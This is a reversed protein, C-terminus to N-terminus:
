AGLMEDLEITLDFSPVTISDGLIYIERKKYINGDPHSHVEVQSDQLNVIWYVPIGSEAYIPLKVERDKTLTSDSVEVILFIDKATPKGKRYYDPNFRCIAIDPEPESHDGLRVPGKISVIAQGILSEKLKQDLWNVTGFHLDGVPSMEIIEGHLLEVRDDETLIGAQIMLQYAESTLLRKTLKVEM